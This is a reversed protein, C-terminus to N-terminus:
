FSFQENVSVPTLSPWYISINLVRPCKILSSIRVSYKALLHSIWGHQLVVISLHHTLTLKDFSLKLILEM